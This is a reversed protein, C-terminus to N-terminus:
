RLSDHFREWKVRRQQGETRLPAKYRETANKGIYTIPKRQPTAILASYCFRITLSTRAGHQNHNFKGQYPGAPPSYTDHEIVLDALQRKRSVGLWSASVTLFNSGSPGSFAAAVQRQSISLSKVSPREGSPVQSRERGWPAGLTFM